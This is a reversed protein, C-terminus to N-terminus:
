SIIRPELVMASIALGALLLGSVVANLTANAVTFYGLFFPSLILLAALALHFWEEWPQQKAIGLQTVLLSILGITITTFSASKLDTFNLVFPSVVLWVAIVLTVIDQLGELRKVKEM